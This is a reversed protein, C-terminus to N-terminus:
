TIRKWGKRIPALMLNKMGQSSSSKHVGLEIAEVMKQAVMQKALRLANKVAKANSRGHAIIVAGNVGLLPAGGYETYDLYRAVQQFAPELVMAALGFHPKSSVVQKMLTFITESLGEGMKVVINGTFGDTVVVDAIGKLLDKGEVNGVFRLETKKLLAHTQLVLHNGKGEEEGNSLLGVRPRGLDFIREMYISGMQAFQFLHITKCDANAGVDILMTKGNMTSFVGGIAPREIGPIRGLTFLAAAMIAGTNGASVFAEAKGEKVLRMGAALSSNKKNRMSEAAGEDMGVVEPADVISIYSDWDQYGEIEKRIEAERGVLVVEIGLERVAEVSAKVMEPPGYDGGMADLVVKTSM